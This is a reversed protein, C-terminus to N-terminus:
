DLLSSAKPKQIFDAFDTAADTKGSFPEGDKIFMINNLAAAIGKATDVNYAYLTISGLAYCGSYVESPKTITEGKRNVIGPQNKDKAVIYWHGKYEEAVDGDEEKPQDGDRLIHDMGAPIKGGWKAAKGIEKEENFAAKIAAVLDVNDKPILFTCQYKLKEPPEKPLKTPQWIHAYSLRVPNKPDGLVVSVPM